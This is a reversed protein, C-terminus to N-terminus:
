QQFDSFTMHQSLLYQYYLCENWLFIWLIEGPIIKAAFFCKTRFHQVTIYATMTVGNLREWYAVNLWFILGPCLVDMWSVNSLFHQEIELNRPWVKLAYCNVPPTWNLWHLTNNTAWPAFRVRVIATTGSIINNASMFKNESQWTEVTWNVDWNLFSLIFCLLVTFAVPWINRGSTKQRHRMSSANGKVLLIKFLYKIGSVKIKISLLRCLLTLNWLMLCISDRCLTKFGGNKYALLLIQLSGWNKWTISTDANDMNM